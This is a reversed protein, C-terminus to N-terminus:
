SGIRPNQKNKFSKQIKKKRTLVGFHFDDARKNEERQSQVWHHYCLSHTPNSLNVYTNKFELFSLFGSQKSKQSISVLPPSWLIMHHDYRTNRDGIATSQLAQQHTQLFNGKSLSRRICPSFAAQLATQWWSRGRWWYLWHWKSLGCRRPAGPKQHPFWCPQKNPNVSVASYDIANSPLPCHARNDSHEPRQSVAPCFNSTELRPTSWSSCIRHRLKSQSM